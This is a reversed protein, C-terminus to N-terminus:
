HPHSAACVEALAITATVYPLFFSTRYLGVGHMKRFLLVAIVLALGMQFPISGLTLWLTTILSKWFETHRTGTELIAQAYNGFGM